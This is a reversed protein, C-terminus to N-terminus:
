VSIKLRQSMIDPTQGNRTPKGSTGKEELAIWENDYFTLFFVKLFSKLFFSKLFIKLFFVKWFFWNESYFSTLNNIAHPTEIKIGENAAGAMQKPFIKWKVTTKKIM